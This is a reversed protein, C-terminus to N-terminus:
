TFGYTDEDVGDMLDMEDMGDVKTQDCYCLRYLRHVAGDGARLASNIFMIYSNVVLHLETGISISVALIGAAKQITNIVIIVIGSVNKFVESGDQVWRADM